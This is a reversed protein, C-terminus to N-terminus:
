TSRLQLVEETADQVASLRQSLETLARTTDALAASEEEGGASALLALRSRLHLLSETCEQQAAHLRIRWKELNTAASRRGEVAALQSELSGLTVPDEEAKIRARIEAIKADLEVLVEEGQGAEEIRQLRQNLDEWARAVRELDRAAGRVQRRLRRPMGRLLRRLDHVLILHACEPDPHRVWESGNEALIRKVRVHNPLLGFFGLLTLGATFVAGILLFISWNRLSDDLERLTLPQARWQKFLDPSIQRAAQLVIRRQVSEDLKYLDKLSLLTM